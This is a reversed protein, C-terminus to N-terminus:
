RLDIHIPSIDEGNSLLRTIRLGPFAGPKGKRFKKADLRLLGKLNGMWLNGDADVMPKCMTFAPDPLGDGRNYIQMRDKKNFHILGRDTGLWLWGDPSETIFTVQRVHGKMGEVTGFSSMNLSSWLLDGREPAFYLNHRSDEFVSRINQGNFFNKPFAATTLANGDWMVMGKATCVWGRGLSDFLIDYVNPDPLQSNFTTYATVNEKPDIRVLGKSTGLWLNGKNDTVQVPVSLRDSEDVPLNVKELRRTDPDMRYLGGRYTGIYFKGHWKSISFVINAGLEAVGFDTRQGTRTDIVHLGERTGILMYNGDTYFSRVTMGDTDIVGDIGFVDVIPNFFQTYDAGDQYYGVWLLGKDDVDVAYVSNSRLRIGSESKSNIRRVIRNEKPSYQFLGGGDTSVILSGDPAGSIDTVPNGDIPVPPLFRKSKRDFRVIGKGDTKLWIEDGAISLGSCIEADSFLYQEIAHTKTNVKYLHTYSSAWLDGNKALALGTVTNSLDLAGSKLPLHKLIHSKTDYVFLGQSSGIYLTKENDSALASVETAIKKPLIQEFIGTSPSPLFSRAKHRFIGGEAGDPGHLDSQQIGQIRLHDSAVQVSCSSQRRISGCIVGIRVM